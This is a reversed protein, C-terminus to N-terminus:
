ATRRTAAPCFAGAAAERAVPPRARRRADGGVRARRADHAPRRPARAARRLDESAGDVRAAALADRLAFAIRNAREPHVPCEVVPVVDHTGRAYHGMSSAAGPRGRRSSSARSRATAGRCATRRRRAHRDDAAGGARRRGDRPALISELGHTKLRLQEEYAVHQWTCGGCVSAHRCRPTVRFPSPELVAVIEALTRGPALERVRRVRVREGPIAGHVLLREEGVRAVAAGSRDISSLSVVLEEDVGRHQARDAARARRPPRRLHAALGRGHLPRVRHAPRGEGLGGREHPAPAARHPRACGRHRRAVGRAAARPLRLAAGVRGPRLRRHPAREGRALYRLRLAANTESDACHVVVEHASWKGPAPRWQLAEKPVRALAKRLEDPGQAYQEILADREPLSLAM